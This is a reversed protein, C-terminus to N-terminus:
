MQHAKKLSGRQILASAGPTETLIFHGPILLVRASSGSLLYGLDIAQRVARSLNQRAMPKQGGTSRNVTHLLSCMEGPEFTVEAGDYPRFARALAHVRFWAPVNHDQAIALWGTQTAREFFRSPQRM